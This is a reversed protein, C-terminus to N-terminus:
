NVLHILETELSNGDPFVAIISQMNYYQQNANKWYLIYDMVYIQEHWGGTSWKYDILDRFKKM